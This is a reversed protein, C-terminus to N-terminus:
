SVGKWETKYSGNKIDNEWKYKSRGLSRKEKWVLFGTHIERREQIQWLGRGKRRILLAFL